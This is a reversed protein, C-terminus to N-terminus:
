HQESLGDSRLLGGRAGRQSLPASPSKEIRFHATDATGANDMAFCPDDIFGLVQASIL